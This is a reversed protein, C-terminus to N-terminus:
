RWLGNSSRTRWHRSPWRASAGTRRPIFGRRAPLARYAGRHVRQHLDEIRRDLDAEYAQWTLGDVGPAARRELAFFSMRLLDPTVHHLLATFREKKRTRAVHRVRDLGQSVSEREQARRTRDRGANGEAGARREVSEASPQGGNNAPKTAVIALDSKERGHMM